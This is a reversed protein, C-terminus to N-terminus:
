INKTGNIWKHQLNFYTYTLPIRTRSLRWFALFFFSSGFLFYYFWRWDSLPFLCYIRNAYCVISTYHFFFFFHIVTYLTMTFPARRAGGYFRSRRRVLCFLLLFFPPCIISLFAISCRYLMIIYIILNAFQFKRPSKVPSRDLCGAM